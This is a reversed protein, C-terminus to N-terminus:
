GVQRGLFDYVTGDPFPATVEVDYTGKKLNFTHTGAGGGDLSGSFPMDPVPTGNHNTIVIQIAEGPQGTGEVTLTGTGDKVHPALKSNGNQLVSTVAAPQQGPTVTFPLPGDQVIQNPNHYVTGHPWPATITVDYTGADLILVDTGEGNANLKTTVKAVQHGGRSVGIQITENPSGRSGKVTITSPGADVSYPEAM